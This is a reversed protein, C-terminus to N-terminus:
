GMESRVPKIADQSAALSRMSSIRQPKITVDSDMFSQPTRGLYLFLMATRM